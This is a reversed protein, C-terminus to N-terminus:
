RAAGVIAAIVDSHVNVIAYLGANRAYDVVQKVRAMWAADINDGDDAHVKWSAPIRVSKFGAAKVADMLAQTTAPNGWSTESPLAELSNGLNWGPSIEKSLELSTINRMAISANGGTDTPASTPSSAAGGGGGGCSAVCAALLLSRITTSLAFSPKM